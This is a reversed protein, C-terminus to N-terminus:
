GEEVTWTDTDCSHSYELTNDVYDGEGAAVKQIAEEKSAAEINVQQVHVERVYVEFLKTAPKKKATPM